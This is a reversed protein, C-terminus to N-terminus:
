KGAGTKTMNGIQKVLNGMLLKVPESLVRNKNREAIVDYIKLFHAREVMINESMCICKWGIADVCKGIIESSFNPYGWSGIKSVYYMVEGWAEGATKDDRCLAKQRIIAIINTAKNIENTSSVIEKISNIYQEDTLDKLFTWLIPADFTKEPFQRGLIFIGEEFVKKDM